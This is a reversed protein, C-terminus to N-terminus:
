KDKWLMLFADRHKALELRVLVVSAALWCVSVCMIFCLNITTHQTQLLQVQTGTINLWGM